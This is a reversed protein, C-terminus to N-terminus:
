MSLRRIDGLGNVLFSVFRAAEAGDIARHDYSLDLPLLRRAKFKEGDWVPAMRARAVGLIAVEPVNVIPTFATGGIGGLSSISICGGQIDAPKLAGDRARQSLEALEIALEIYGKRDVERVVPVVLGEPTDVAIGINFYKKYIISEGDASLSANFQPFKKLAAVMARMIFVLPTLKIGQAAVEEKMSQRFQELDTIDAEDHHTVHPANLWARQLHPGSLRKIRSLRVEETEGFRSFDIAPIAPIGTAAVGAAVTSGAAGGLRGKVWQQVDEVLIRGKRGTGNIQNLDAGLERAFRRVSPSAHATSPISVEGTTMTTTTVSSAPTASASAVAPAVSTSTVAQAQAPPAVAPVPAPRANVASDAGAPISGASAAASDAPSDASSDAYSAAAADGILSALLQGHQVQDGVAVHLQEIRGAHTSPVDMSAKDSELTVLPTDVDVTDGVGVLIEIVEVAEDSGIDPIRIEITGGSTPAVATPTPEQRTVPEAVGGFNMGKTAAQQTARGDDPSTAPAAVTADPTAATDVRESLTEPATELLAIVTGQRVRDGTNVAISSIRGAVTAPVDLTAKDSELTILPDDVGITDGAQVLVEVVEVEEDDGIDPIMIELLTGM